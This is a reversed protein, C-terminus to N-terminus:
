QQQFFHQNWELKYGLIKQHTALNCWWAGGGDPSSFIFNRSFNSTGTLSIVTGQFAGGDCNASNHIFNEPANLVQDLAESAFNSDIKQCTFFRWTIKKNNNCTAGGKNNVTVDNETVGVFVKATGFEERPYLLEIFVIHPIQALFIEHAKCWYTRNWNAWSKIQPFLWYRKGIRQFQCIHWAWRANLSGSRVNLPSKKRHFWLYNSIEEISGLLKKRLFM